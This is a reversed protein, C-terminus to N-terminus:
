AASPSSSERRSEPAGAAKKAAPRRAYAVVALEPTTCALGIREEEPLPPLLERVNTVVQLRVTLGPDVRRKLRNRLVGLRMTWLRALEEAERVAVLEQLYDSRTLTPGATIACARDIEERLRPASVGVSTGDTAQSRAEFAARRCEPSCYVRDSRTQPFERRDWICYATRVAKRPSAPAAM